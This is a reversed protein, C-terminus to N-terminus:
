AASSFGPPDWPNYDPDPPVLPTEPQAISVELFVELLPTSRLKYGHDTMAEHHRAIAERLRELDGPDVQYLTELSEESRRRTSYTKLGFRLKLVMGLWKVVQGYYKGYDDGRIPIKVGFVRVPISERYEHLRDAFERIVPDRSGYEETLCHLLVNEFGLMKWLELSLEHATADWIYGRLGLKKRRKLDDDTALGEYILRQAAGLANRGRGFNEDLIREMSLPQDWTIGYYWRLSDAERASEERATLDLKGIPPLDEKKAEYIPTAQWIRVQDGVSPLGSGPEQIRTLTVKRGDREAYAGVAVAYHQYCTRQHELHGYVWNHEPTGQVFDFGSWAETYAINQTLSELERSFQQRRRDRAKGAGPALTGSTLPNPVTAFEPVAIAVPQSGRVRGVAQICDSPSYVKGQSLFVGVVNEYTAPPKISVGSQVLPSAVQGPNGRDALYQGSNPSSLLGRTEDSDRTQSTHLDHEIGRRDLELSIRKAMRASDTATYCHEGIQDTILKQTYKRSGKVTPDPTLIEIPGKPHANELDFKLIKFQEGRAAEVWELDFLRATASALWIREAGQIAQTLAQIRQSRNERCLSGTFLDGLGQELEDIVLVYRDPFEWGTISHICGRYPIGFAKAVGEAITRRPVAWFTEEPGYSHCCRMMDMLESKGMGTPGDIMVLPNAVLFAIAEDITKAVTVRRNGWPRLILGRVRQIQWDNLDLPEPQAHRTEPHIAPAVKSWFEAPTIWDIAGVREDIDPHAKTEQGWWGYFVTVGHGELFKEAKYYSSLVDPNVIAGGDPCIGVTKATGIAELLFTPSSAWNGGAAGITPVGTLEAALYPKVGLGEVLVREMPSEQPTLPTRLTLPVEGGFRGDIGNVMQWPYKPVDKERNRIQGRCLNGDALVTPILYGRSLSVVGLRTLHEPTLTIGVKAFRRTIDALDKPNLPLDRSLIAVQHRHWQERTWEKKPATEPKSYVIALPRHGDELPVYKHWRNIAAEGLWKWGPATDGHVHSCLVLDGIIRCDGTTDACLPCDLGRRTPTFKGGGGHGESYRKPTHGSPLSSSLSFDKSEPETPPYFAPM